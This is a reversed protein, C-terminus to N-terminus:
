CKQATRIAGLWDGATPTSGHSGGKPPRSSCCRRATTANRRHPRSPSGQQLGFPGNVYWETVAGHDVEVRNDSPVPDNGTVATSADGGGSSVLGMRWRLSDAQLTTGEHGFVVRVGQVPNELAVGAVAELAHHRFDDRGIAASVAYQAEIPLSSGASDHSATPRMSESYQVDQGDASPTAKPEEVHPISASALATTPSVLVVLVLLGLGLIGWRGVLHRADEASNKDAKGSRMM